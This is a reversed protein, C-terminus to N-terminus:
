CAGPVTIAKTTTNNNENTEVQQEKWDVKAWITHKGPSAAVNLHKVSTTYLVEDFVWPSEQFEPARDLRVQTEFAPVFTPKGNATKIRLKVQVNHKGNADPQPLCSVNEIDVQLDPKPKLAQGPQTKGPTPQKSSPEPPAAGSSAAVLCVLAVAAAHVPRSM